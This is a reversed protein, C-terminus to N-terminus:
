RPEPLLSEAWDRHRHLPIACDAFRSQLSGRSVSQAHALVAIAGAVMGPAAHPLVDLFVVGMLARPLRQIIVVLGNRTDM